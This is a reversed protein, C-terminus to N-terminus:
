EAKNIITGQLDSAGMLIMEAEGFSGPSTDSGIKPRVLSSGFVREVPVKFKLARGYGDSVRPDTTYSSLERAKFSVSDDEHPPEKDLGQGRVGRFLTVEKLGIHKFFAQQFAYMKQAYGHLEEDGAGFKRNKDTRGDDKEEEPTKYGKVGSAAMMGHLHNSENNGASIRWANFYIDHIEVDDKSLVNDEFYKGIEHGGVHVMKENPSLSLFHKKMIPDESVESSSLYTDVKKKLGGVITDFHAKHKELMEDITGPKISFPGKLTLGSSETEKEPAKEKKPTGGDKEPNKKAWEKYEKLAHTFFHPTKLATSYSVEPHRSKTEPNPNTIRSKGGDHLADLWEKWRAPVGGKASDAEGEDARLYRAVVRAAIM